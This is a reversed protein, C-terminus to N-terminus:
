FNRSQIRPFFYLHRPYIMPHWFKGSLKSSISAV